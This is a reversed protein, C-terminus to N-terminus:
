GGYVARMDMVNRVHSWDIGLRNLYSKRVVRKWHEYDKRFDESAPNGYVGVQTNNLWYPPVQVRNPWEQPWQSGRESPDVPVRHMCSQLPVYWAANPDDDEKCMPPRPDTRKEYCENSVPKRFMAAGISNLKDKKITVLEWCMSKTLATMASVVPSVNVMFSYIVHILICLFIYLDSNLVNRM